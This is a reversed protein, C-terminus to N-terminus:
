LAVLLCALAISGLCWKWIIGCMFACEPDDLCAAVATGVCESFSVGGSNDEEDSKVNFLTYQLVEETEKDVVAFLLERGEYYISVHYAQGKDKKEHEYYTILKNDEKAVLILSLERSSKDTQDYTLVIAKGELNTYEVVDMASYDDDHQYHTKGGAAHEALFLNALLVEEESPGRITEIDYTVEEAEQQPDVLLCEVAEDSCSTNLLFVGAVIAFLYLTKKM